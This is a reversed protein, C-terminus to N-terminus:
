KIISPCVALKTQRLHLADGTSQHNAWRVTSWLSGCMQRRKGMEKKWQARSRIRDPQYDVRPARSSKPFRTDRWENVRKRNTKGNYKKVTTKDYSQLTMHRGLLGVLSYAILDAMHNAPQRRIWYLFCRIIQRKWVWEFLFFFVRVLVLIEQLQCDRSQTLLSFLPM